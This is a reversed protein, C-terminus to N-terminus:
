TELTRIGSRVMASSEPRCPAGQRRRLGGGTCSGTGGAEAPVHPSREAITLTAPNHQSAYTTHCAAAICTGHQQCTSTELHQRRPQLQLLLHLRRLGQLRGSGQMCALVCTHLSAECARICTRLRASVAPLLLRYIQYIDDSPRVVNSLRFVRLQLSKDAQRKAAQFCELFRVVNDFPVDSCRAWPPPPIGGAACM